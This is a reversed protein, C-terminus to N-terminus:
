TRENKRVVGVFDLVMMPFHVNECKKKSNHIKQLWWAHKASHFIVGNKQDSRCCFFFIAKWDGRALGGVVRGVAGKRVFNATAGRWM